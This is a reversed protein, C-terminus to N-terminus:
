AVRYVKEARLMPEDRGPDSVMIGEILLPESTNLVGRFRRYIEPYVVVDLM